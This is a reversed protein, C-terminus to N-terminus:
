SDSGLSSAMSYAGGSGCRGFSFISTANDIGDSGLMLDYQTCSSPTLGSLTSGDSRTSSPRRCLADDATFPSM